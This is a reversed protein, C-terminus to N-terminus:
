GFACGGEGATILLTAAGAADLTAALQRPDAGAAAVVYLRSQVEPGM